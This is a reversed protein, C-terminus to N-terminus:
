QWLSNLFVMTYHLQSIYRDMVQFKVLKSSVVYQLAQILTTPNLQNGSSHDSCPVVLSPSLNLAQFAVFSVAGEAVLSFFASSLSM